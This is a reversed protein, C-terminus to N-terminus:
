VFVVGRVSHEYIYTCVRIRWIRLVRVHLERAEVIYVCCQHVQIYAIDVCCVCVHIYEVCVYVCM